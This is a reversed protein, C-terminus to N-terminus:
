EIDRPPELRSLELRGTSEVAFFLYMGVHPLTNAILFELVILAKKGLEERFLIMPVVPLLPLVM